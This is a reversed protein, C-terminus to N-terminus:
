ARHRSRLGARENRCWRPSGGTTCNRRGRSEVDFTAPGELVVVAGDDFTIEILGTSLNLHQGTTLRSGYGVETGEAWSCNRTATVRAVSQASDGAVTRAVDAARREGSALSYTLWSSGAAVGVLGAAIALWARWGNFRSAREPGRDFIRRPSSEVRLEQRCELAAHQSYLEGHLFMYNNYFARASVDKTLRSDLQAIEEATITGDCMAGVLRELESECGTAM